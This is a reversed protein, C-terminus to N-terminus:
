PDCESNGRGPRPSMDDNFTITSTTTDLLEVVPDNSTSPSFLLALIQWAREFAGQDPTALLLVLGCTYEDGTDFPPREPDSLDDLAEAVDKLFSQHNGRGSRLTVHIGADPTEFVASLQRVIADLEDAISTLKRLKRDFAALAADSISRARTAGLGIDRGTELVRDLLRDLAPFTQAVSPSRGWDPPKGLRLNTRRRPEERWFAPSSLLTFGTQYNQEPGEVREVRVDIAVHYCYTTGWDRPSTDLYREILGDYDNVDLVVAGHAGMLGTVLNRSSFLDLVRRASAAQTQDSRIVAYRTPVARWQGDDLGRADPPEWTVSVHNGRASPNAQVSRVVIDTWGRTASVQGSGKLEPILRDFYAAVGLAGTLDTAGSVMLCYGWSTDASFQPRSGDGPDYLSETLTRLIHANGGSLFSTRDFAQLWTTGSMTALDSPAQAAETLTLWQSEPLFDGLGKKPLPILLVYCGLDDLLGNIAGEIARGLTDLLGQVLDLTGSASAPLASAALLEARAVQLQARFGELATSLSTGVDTVENPIPPTLQNWTM